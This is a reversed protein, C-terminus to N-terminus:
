EGEAGAPDLGARIAEPIRRDAQAILQTLDAVRRGYLDVADRLRQYAALQEATAGAVMESVAASVFLQGADNAAQIRGATEAVADRSMLKGIPFSLWALSDDTAGEPSMQTPAGVSFTTSMQHIRM